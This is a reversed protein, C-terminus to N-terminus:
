ILEKKMQGALVLGAIRHDFPRVQGARTISAALLGAQGGEGITGLSEFLHSTYNDFAHNRFSQQKTEFDANV